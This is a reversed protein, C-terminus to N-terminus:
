GVRDALETQEEPRRIDSEDSPCQYRMATLIRNFRCPQAAGDDVPRVNVIEERDFSFKRSRACGGDRIGGFFNRPFYTRKQGVRRQALASDRRRSRHCIALLANQIRHEDMDVRM